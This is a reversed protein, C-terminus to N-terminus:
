HPNVLLWTAVILCLVGIIANGERFANDERTAALLNLAGLAYGIAISYTM